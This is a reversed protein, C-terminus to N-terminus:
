TASSERTLDFFILFFFFFSYHRHISLSYFHTNTLIKLLPFSKIVGMPGNRKRPPNGDSISTKLSYESKLGNEERWHNPSKLISKIWDFHAMVYYRKAARTYHETVRMDSNEMWDCTEKINYANQILRAISCWDRCVNPHFHPWVLKGRISLQKRLYSETFPKGSPQLYVYNGSYQNAVKPRWKEIWNEYSKRSAM